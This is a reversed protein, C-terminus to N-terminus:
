IKDQIEPNQESYFIFFVPNKQHRSEYIILVEARNKVQKIGEKQSKAFLTHRNM